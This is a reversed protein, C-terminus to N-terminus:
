RIIHGMKKDAYVEAVFYPLKYTSGASLEALNHDTPRFAGIVPAPSVDRSCSFRVTRNIDTGDGEDAVIPDEKGIEGELVPTEAEATLVAEDDEDDVEAAGVKTSKVKVTASKASGLKMTDKAM